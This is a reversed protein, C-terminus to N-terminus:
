SVGPQSSSVQSFRPHSSKVSEPTVLTSKVSVSGPTGEPAEPAFVSCPEPALASVPVQEFAPTSVPVQEFAPASVPVQEPAPTSVPVQELAPASLVGEGISAEQRGFKGVHSRRKKPKQTAIVATQESVFEMVTVPFAPRKLIVERDLVTLAPQEPISREPTVPVTEAPVPTVPVTEAPVPTVPVTEAPVPTLFVPKPLDQVSEISVFVSAATRAARRRRVRREVTPNSLALAQSPLPHASQDTDGCKFHEPFHISVDSRMSVCSPEPESRKQHVLSFNQPLEMSVDSRMSVCSPEPESRKQHVSSCGTSFDEDRSTHTDDM